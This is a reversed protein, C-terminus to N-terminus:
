YCRRKESNKAIWCCYKTANESPSSSCPHPHWSVGISHLSHRAYKSACLSLIKCSMWTKNNKGRHNQEWYSTRISFSNQADTAASFLWCWIDYYCYYYHWKRCIATQTSNHFLMSCKIGGSSRLSERESNTASVFTCEQMMQRLKQIDVREDVHLYRHKEANHWNACGLFFRSPVGTSVQM